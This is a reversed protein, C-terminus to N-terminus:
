FPLHRTKTLDRRAYTHVTFTNLFINKKKKSFLLNISVELSRKGGSASSM